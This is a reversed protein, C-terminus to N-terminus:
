SSSGRKSRIIIWAIMVAYAVAGIVSFLMIAAVDSSYVYFGLLLGVVKSGTSMIEYILLGKQLGLIPVAAVSPRNVLNFYFFFALWRAYEGAMSWEVGFVLSFLLPGFAVVLAFPLFSVAALMATAKIILRAVEEDNHAAENIRPYFVDGVSKGVLRSPVAMALRALTYFGATKAGFLSALMLVPISQSASNIFVQPARYLPFDYYKKALQRLSTKTKSETKYSSIAVNNRMQLFLMLSHVANAIVSLVILVAAAPNLLGVGTKAINIIFAQFVAIRATVSFYKKRIMWQKAIELWASFIMALPILLLYLAISQLGFWEVLWDKGVLLILAALTSIVFSILFSLRALSKAEADAKPVGIAIPYCLAACPTAISVIAIFAGMLGFAEPGYIRTVFPTSALTIAQAALAGSAVVTVNRTFKSNTLHRLKARM